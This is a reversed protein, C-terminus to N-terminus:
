DRSGVVSLKKMLFDFKEDLTARFKERTSEPLDLLEKKFPGYGKKRTKYHFQEDTEKAKREEACNKDLWAYIRAKLDEPLHGGDYFMNQFGTALHIEVTQTEPFRHFLEDPLTSAGHQVAGGIGYKKIALDSLKELVDFDLAVKAVTGDPLPVGGHSTGTQVSIKSIGVMGAPLSRRYGDMFAELEDVTSNKGGVEGIEGGVSVMVGQPQRDRIYKTFMACLEYNLRQQEDLTPPDLDVLTSTDIDIQYFGAALAEDILDKIVQIEKEPNEKYKKANVQFHDGQIFVPGQFGEKICAAQVAAAYEAPRQFTYGIESRAIEFIVAGVRNKNAARCIARATEYTLGRINVAPVTASKYEGRGRAMYLDHISGLPCGLAAGAERIIWRCADRVGADENLVANYALADIKSGRLADPEAVKATGNQVEVTGNLLKKLDGIGSFLM